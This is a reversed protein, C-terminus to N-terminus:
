CMRLCSFMVAIVFELESAAKAFETKHCPFIFQVMFKTKVTQFLNYPIIWLLFYAILTPTLIRTHQCATTFIHFHLYKWISTFRPFKIVFLEFGNWITMILPFIRYLCQCILMNLSENTRRTTSFREALFKWHHGITFKTRPSVCTTCCQSRMFFSIM